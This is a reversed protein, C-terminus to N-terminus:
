CWFVYAEYLNHAWSTAQEPQDQPPSVAGTQSPDAKIAEPDWSLLDLLSQVGQFHVWQRLTRGPETTHDHGVFYDPFAGM